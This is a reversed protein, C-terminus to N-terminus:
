NSSRHRAKETKPEWPDNGEVIYRALSVLDVADPVSRTAFGQPATLVDRAAILAAILARQKRRLAPAPTQETMRIGKTPTRTSPRRTRPRRGPPTKGRRPQHRPTTRPDPLQTRPGRRGRRPRPPRAYPRRPPQTFKRWAGALRALPGGKLAWWTLLGVFVVPALAFSLVGAIHRREERDYQHGGILDALRMNIPILALWAIVGGINALAEM